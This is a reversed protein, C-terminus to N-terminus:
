ISSILASHWYHGLTAASSCGGRKEGVVSGVLGCVDGVSGPLSRKGQQAASCTLSQLPVGPHPGSCRAAAPQAWISVAHKGLGGWWEESCPWSVGHVGPSAPLGHKPLAPSWLWMVLMEQCTAPGSCAGPTFSRCVEGELVCPFRSNKGQM